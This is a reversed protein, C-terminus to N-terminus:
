MGLDRSPDITQGDPMRVLVHFVKLTDGKANKRTRWTIRPTAMIGQSRLEAILAAAIDDCDGVGRAFLTEVDAFEDVPLTRGSPGLLRFVPEPRYRIGAVYVSPYRGPNAKMLIQNQCAQTEIGVQLIRAMASPPLSKNIPLCIVM